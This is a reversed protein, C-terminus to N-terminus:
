EGEAVMSSRESENTEYIPPTHISMSVVWVAVHTVDGLGLGVMIEAAERLLIAGAFKFERIHSPLLTTVIFPTWVVIVRGAPTVWALTHPIRLLIVVPADPLGM